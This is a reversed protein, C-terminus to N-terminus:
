KQERCGVGQVSALMVTDESDSPTDTLSSFPLTITASIFSADESSDPTQGSICAALMGKLAQREAMLPVLIVVTWCAALNIRVEGRGRAIQKSYAVGAGGSLLFRPVDVVWVTRPM